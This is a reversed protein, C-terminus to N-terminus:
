KNGIERSGVTDCEIHIQLMPVFPDGVPANGISAIRQLRAYVQTAIKVEAPPQYMHLSYFRHYRDPTNAPILIDDGTLTVVDSIVAGQTAYIFEIQFRVYKDVAETGNTIMHIHWYWPSGELWSHVIEQGECMSFDGVAWTPVVINGSLTTPTPQGAQATRAVIPFDIDRWVTSSGRFRLTGDEEFSSYDLGRHQGFRATRASIGNNFLRM